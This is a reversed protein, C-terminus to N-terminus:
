EAHMRLWPTEFKGSGFTVWFPLWTLTITWM